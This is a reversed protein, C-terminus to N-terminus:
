VTSPQDAASATESGTTTTAGAGDAGADTTTDETSSGTESHGLEVRRPKSEESVPITLTLVGNRTEATM